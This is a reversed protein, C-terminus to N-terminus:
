LWGRERYYRAAGPHLPASLGHGTMQQPELATLAPHTQKLRELNEFVAKVMAYVLAEDVASSSVVTAVVGFTAVDESAGAYTGAGITAATYYRNDAVLRDVAAGTVPVLHAACASLAETISGNPHGVTYVIADVKGDCMAKAQETAPWEGALAFDGMRWGLATMLAEFTARAGSGPNGVNVRRGKLDALTAISSDDRAVITVPEAHLSFVARLEPMPGHEAFPPEGTLAEFQTDSQALGFAMRGARIANVNDVSGGTAPATCRLAPPGPTRNVLRCISQGIEYYVGTQGGTGITVSQREAAIAGSAVTLLLGCAAARAGRWWRSARGPRGTM